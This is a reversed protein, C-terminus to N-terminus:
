HTRFLGAELHNPRRVRPGIKAGDVSSDGNVDQMAEVSVEGSAAAVDCLQLWRKGAEPQATAIVAQKEVEPMRIRGNLNRADAIAALSVALTFTQM